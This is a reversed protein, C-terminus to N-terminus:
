KFRVWEDTPLVEGNQFLSLSWEGADFHTKMLQAKYDSIKKQRTVSSEKKAIKDALLSYWQMLPGIQLHSSGRELLHKKYAKVSNPNEICKFEM